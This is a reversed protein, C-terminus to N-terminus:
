QPIITLLPDIFQIKMRTSLFCDQENIYIYCKMENVSELM